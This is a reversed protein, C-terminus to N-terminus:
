NVWRGGISSLAPLEGTSYDTKGIAGWMRTGTAERWLKSMSEGTHCGWSKVYADRVFDGRNIKKLDTEHMWAKSASDVVNSYDFLFCAKNSHGFYEFGSIKVQDRPHGSNLYNIVDGGRDFYVLNLHFKDRVSNINAILDQNEQKGRDVYGPKYVLWTIMADPGLQMRLQETRVRASHVFNAWWHDHAIPGKYQEWVHLSPGGVVIIYERQPQALAPSGAFVCFFLFLALRQRM